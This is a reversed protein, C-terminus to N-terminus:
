WGGGGGGGGGGGAGGAGGSGSPSSTNSAISSSLSDMASSFTDADFAAMNSGAYWVPTYTAFYEEGYIEKMKKIWIKTIGFVIAYPLFKEFINEKEYFEARHKDVTEMFLKFGKIQWNIEAGEPTRKPMLLAFILIVTVSLFFSLALFLSVGAFVIGLFFVFGATTLFATRYTLGSPVIFKKEALQNIGKKRIDKLVKYFKNKLSSLEIREGESFVQRLIIKQAGNLESEIKLGSNKTFEYDKSDFFLIKKETEKINVLGKVALNIIEATVFKNDFNGNKELIGLEIPSLGGPVDYEAIVTKDVRPDKGYKQWLRFCLIFVLIPIALFFYKGYLEWFGFHYPTFIGKPFTASVTIGEKKGLTRTSNFELVNPASWHYNALDKEKSGLSGAYYEVTTNEPNVEQPFVLSAHFKDTEIDWFNGNLNWYLEDFDPQSRVVNAVRYHIEYNNVGTVTRDPDGIKWTVTHDSYNRSESYNIKQGKFDTIGLLEVPTEIKDGNSLNVREPLIRFIGHKDPINGCDATIREIVDLTSNKSVTIKSDFDKIYWDTVNTRALVGLPYFSSVLFLFFVVAQKIKGFM